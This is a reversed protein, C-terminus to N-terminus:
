LTRLVELEPDEIRGNCGKMIEMKRELEDVRMKLNRNEDDLFVIWDNTSAKLADQDQSINDMDFKVAAFAAKLRQNQFINRINQFRFKM